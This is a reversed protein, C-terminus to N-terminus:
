TVRTPRLWRSRPPSAARFSVTNRSQDNGAAVVTAIGAARLNDVSTKFSVNASDCNSTFNDRGVSLNISAVGVPLSNRIAYVHDLGSQIDSDLGRPVSVVWLQVEFISPHRHDLRRQRRRQDTREGFGFHRLGRRHRRRAHRARLRRDHHRLERGSGSATSSSVGGPCISTYGNFSDTTSYCAEAIVKGTIFEHASAVGTDLVAVAWNAGTAGYSSYATTMGILPVSQILLPKNLGDIRIQTVRDDNALAEIEAASANIAFSPSIEMRRLARDSGTLAAPSGFHASLIPDQAAQNESIIQPMNEAATGLASRAAASPPKYDVIIRVQGKAAAQSLLAAANVGKAQLAASPQQAWSPTVAFFYFVAIAFSLARTMTTM